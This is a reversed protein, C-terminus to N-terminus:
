KGNGNTSSLRKVKLAEKLDVIKSKLQTIESDQKITKEMSSINAKLSSCSSCSFSKQFIIEALHDAAAIQADRKAKVEKNRRQKVTITMQEDDAKRGKRKKPRM